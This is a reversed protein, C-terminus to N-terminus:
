TGRRRIINYAYYIRIDIDIVIVGRSLKSLADVVIHDHVVSITWM